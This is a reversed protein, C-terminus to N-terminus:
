DGDAFSQALEDYARKAEGLAAKFSEAQFGPRDKADLWATRADDLSKSAERLYQTPATLVDLKRDDRKKAVIATELTSKLGAALTKRSLSKPPDGASGLLTVDGSEPASALLDYIPTM